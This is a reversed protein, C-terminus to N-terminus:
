SGAPRGGKRKKPKPLNRREAFSVAASKVAQISGLRPWGNHNKKVEALIYSLKRGDMMMDYISRNRQDLLRRDKSDRTMSEFVARLTEQPDFHTEGENWIVLDPRSCRILYSGWSGLIETELQRLLEDLNDWEEDLEDEADCLKDIQSAGGPGSPVSPDLLQWLATLSKSFRDQYDEPLEAGHKEVVDQADSVVKCAKETDSKVDPIQEVGKTHLSTGEWKFWIAKAYSMEKPDHYVAVSSALDHLESSVSAMAALVKGWEPYVTILAFGKEDPTPM